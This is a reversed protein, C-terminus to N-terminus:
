NFRITKVPDIRSVILSPILLMVFCAVLSGINISIITTPDFLVPVHDIYYSTKDLKILHFKQQLLGFGIGLLNGWFLGLFVLYIANYLFIRSISANLAGMAKLLGIMNTRELILVLLASIMNIGSVLVMLTLIIFVNIDQLELWGFIEIFQDTIKLTNFEYSINNNIIYDLRDLDDFSELIVEFGAVQDENWNNLKQVHRIDCLFISGDFQEMGTEYIGGITFRRKREKQDQIFVITIKDGLSLKLKDIVSKSLVISDNAKEETWHWVNGELLNQKFFSWDFDQNVGKAMVGQIEGNETIIGSKYAYPQISKVGTEALVPEIFEQELLMPKVGLTNQPNYLSIQLHSGFGIVKQQIETQFGRVISVSLIMVAMGIAIGAVAIRVIASSSQGTLRKRRGGIMKKALFLEFNM